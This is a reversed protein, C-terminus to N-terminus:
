NLRYRILNRVTSKPLNLEKAIATTVLLHGADPPNPIVGSYRSGGLPDCDLCEPFEFHRSIKFILLIFFM